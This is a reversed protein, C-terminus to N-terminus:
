EREIVTSFDIDVGTQKMMKFFYPNYRQMMEQWTMLHKKKEFLNTFNDKLQTLYENAFICVCGSTFNIDDISIVRSAILYGIEATQSLSIDILFLRENSFVDILHLGESVKIGEVMFLSCCSNKVANLIKKEESTSFKSYRDIYLEIYRKGEIMIDNIARDMVYSLEDESNSVIIGDKGIMRLDKASELFVDRPIENILKNNLEMGLKRWKKYRNIYTM